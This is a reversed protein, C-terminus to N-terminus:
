IVRYHGPKIKEFSLGIQELEKKANRIHNYFASDSLNNKFKNKLNQVSVIERKKFQELIHNRIKSASNIMNKRNSTKAATLNPKIIEYTVYNKDYQSDCIAPALEELNLVPGEEIKVMSIEAEFTKSFEILQILNKEHTFFKRNDKTEILLCNM